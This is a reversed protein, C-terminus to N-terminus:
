HARKANAILSQIYQNLLRKHSESLECFKVGMGPPRNEAEQQARAWAVECTAKIPESFDPLQLKLSFREGEKLPNDTRIFLGEKSINGTFSRVFSQRDNFTVSLSKLTRDVKRSSIECTRETLNRFRNVVAVIISRFSSSLLNFERDLFGRDIIGLTTEGLARATATRKIDGLYGLEGFVEGPELITITYKNEGITRSIEVSGQLIVYVWDGSTGEKFIVQGDKYAEESAIPYM